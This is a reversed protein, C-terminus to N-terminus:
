TIRYCSTQRWYWKTYIRRHIKSHLTSPHHVPRNRRSTIGEVTNSHIINTRSTMVLDVILIDQPAESEVTMEGM